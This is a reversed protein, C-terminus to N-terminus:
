RENTSRKENEHYIVKKGHSKAYAIEQKVSEGIYGNINVVYIADSIDIKKEHLFALQRKDNENPASLGYTCQIVCFGNKLELKNAIEKMEKQFKMSGCITVVKIKKNKDRFVIACILIILCFALELSTEVILMVTDTCLIAYLTYSLSSVVWLGWSWISLDEGRKTILCKLIQPFYSVFTCISVVILLINGLTEM